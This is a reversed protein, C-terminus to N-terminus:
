WVFEPSRVIEDLKADFFMNHWSESLRCGDPNSVPEQKTLVSIRHGWFPKKGCSWHVVYTENDFPPFLENDIHQYYLPLQNLDCQWYCNLYDMDSMFTIGPHSCSLIPMIKSRDPRLVMMASMLWKRDPCDCSHCDRDYPRGLQDWHNVASLEPCFFLHDINRFVINDMDLYIIKDYEEMGWPESIKMASMDYSAIVQISPPPQAPRLIFGMDRAKQLLFETITPQTALYAIVIDVQTGTRRLSHAAVLTAVFYASDAPTFVYAFKTVNEDDPAIPCYPGNGPSPLISPLM